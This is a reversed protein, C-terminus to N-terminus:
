TLKDDKIIESSTGNTSFFGEIPNEIKMSRDAMFIYLVQFLFSLFTSCSCNQNLSHPVESIYKVRTSFLNFLFYKFGM